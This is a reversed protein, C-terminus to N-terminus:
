VNRWWEQWSISCILIGNKFLCCIFCSLLVESISVSVTTLVTTTSRLYIRRRMESV